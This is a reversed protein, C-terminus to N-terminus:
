FQSNESEEIGIIRINPRRTTNPIEQINQILLNKMKCKEKVTTDINEVTDESEQM